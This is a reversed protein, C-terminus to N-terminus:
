TTLRLRCWGTAAGAHGIEIAACEVGPEKRVGRDGLSIQVLDHRQIRRRPGNRLGRRACSYRAVGRALSADSTTLILSHGVDRADEIRDFVAVGLGGTLQQRQDVVLEASYRLLAHGTFPRPVAEVGRRQNVFHVQLKNAVFVHAEAQAFRACKKAAAASAMRRM